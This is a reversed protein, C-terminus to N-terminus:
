VGASTKKKLDNSESVLLVVRQSNADETAVPQLQCLFTTGCQPMAFGSAGLFARGLSLM